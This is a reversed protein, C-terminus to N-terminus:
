QTIILTTRSILERSRVGKGKEHFRLALPYGWGQSFLGDFFKLRPHLLMAVRVSHDKSM